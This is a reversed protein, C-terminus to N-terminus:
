DISQICNWAQYNKNCWLRTQYWHLRVLTSCSQDTSTNLAFVTVTQQWQKFYDALKV